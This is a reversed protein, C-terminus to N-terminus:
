PFSIGVLRAAYNSGMSFASIGVTLVNPCNMNFYMVRNAVGSALDAFAYNDIMTCAPFSFTVSTTSTNSPFFTKNFAYSGIYSVYSFELGVNGLSANM